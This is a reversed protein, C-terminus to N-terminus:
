KGAAEATMARALKNMVIVLRLCALMDEKNIVAEAGVLATVIFAVSEAGALAAPAPGLSFRDPAWVTGHLYDDLGEAAARASGHGPHRHLLYTAPATTPMACTSHTHLALTACLAVQLASDITIIGTCQLLLLVPCTCSKSLIVDHLTCLQRGAPIYNFM